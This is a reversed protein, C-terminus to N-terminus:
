DAVSNAQPTPPHPRGPLNVHQSGDYADALDSLVTTSQREDLAVQDLRNLAERYRTTDDPHDLLLANTELDLTVLPDMDTFTLRQFGNNVLGTGKTSRPVIRITCRNWASLFTLHLLQENMVLNDGILTYLANEHIYWTYSQYRTQEILAQRRKLGELRHEVVPSSCIGAEILLARAYAETRLLAPMCAAEYGEITNASEEHLLLTRTADRTTDTHHISRYHSDDAALALVEDVEAQQAGCSALYMTIDRDSPMRVGTEARSTKTPTWGLRRALESENFGVRQRYSRLHHGIEKSLATPKDAPM